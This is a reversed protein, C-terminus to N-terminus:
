VGGDQEASDARPGRRSIAARAGARSEGCRPRVAGHRGGFRRSRGVRIVDQDIIPGQDLDPTVYHCTAGILKVGKEYAQHYPKAGVFSPLFSHHINIIRGAYKACLEPPFVQMFRALAMTEGRHEVFLQDVKKFAEVRNAPTIEVRFYPIEHWEVFKRLDDHNSIVCPIDFDFDQNRWRYLLDSLCHDHKSVLVVVRKKVASDTIQWDMRFSEAIPAFRTRFSDIGFPLSEALIQQRMFFWKSVEDAHHNAKTIWGKNTAIFESVAAVIGVRDPCSITLTYTRPRRPETKM